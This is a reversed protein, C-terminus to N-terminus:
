RDKSRPQDSNGLCGAPERPRTSQGVWLDTGPEKLFILSPSKEKLSVYSETKGECLAVSFDTNELYIFSKWVSYSLWTVKLAMNMYSDVRKQFILVLGDILAKTVKCRLLQCQLVPDKFSGSIVLALNDHM